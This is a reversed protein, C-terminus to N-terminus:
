LLYRSYNYAEGIIVLPLIFTLRTGLFGAAAVLLNGLPVWSFFLLFVLYKNFFSAARAYRKSDPKYKMFIKGILWNFSQGAIAGAVALLSPLVMDHGGFAKLAAITPESGLPIISATWASELLISLLHTM